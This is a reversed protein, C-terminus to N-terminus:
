YVLYKRYMGTIMTTLRSLTKVSKGWSVNNKCVYKVGSFGGRRIAMEVGDLFEKDAMSNGRILKIALLSQNYTLAHDEALEQIKSARKLIRKVGFSYNQKATVNKQHRRYHMFVQPIFEVRGLTATFKTYLNDHSLIKVYDQNTDIMPVAFFAKRNMILNCGFVNHSFFVTYKNKYSIGLESNISIGVLCNEGDIIDMDGYCLQPIDNTMKDIYMVMREIKDPLWVDDQDCFMYYDYANLTKCFNALSHFNYYAGHNKCESKRFSIRSDEKVFKKILEETNDISGDDQIILNWDTYSQEIISKIQDEIYDAGNYSALMILVSPSHM